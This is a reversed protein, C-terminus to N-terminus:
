RISEGVQALEEPKESGIVVQRNGNHHIIVFKKSNASFFRGRTKIFARHAGFGRLENGSCVDVKDIDAAPIILHPKSNRNFFFIYGVQVENTRVEMRIRTILQLILSCVAIFFAFVLSLTFVPPSYTIRGVAIICFICYYVLGSLATAILFRLFFLFSMRYRQIELFLVESGDTSSM